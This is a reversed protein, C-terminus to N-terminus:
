HVEKKCDYSKIDKITDELLLSAGLIKAEPKEAVKELANLVSAKDCRRLGNLVISLM